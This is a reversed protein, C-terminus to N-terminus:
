KQAGLEQIRTEDAQIAKTKSVTPKAVFFPISILLCGGGGGAFATMFISDNGPQSRASAAASSTTASNYTAMTSLMDILFYSGVGLAVVGTGLCIWGLTHLVGENKKAIVLDQQQTKLDSNLKALEQDRLFQRSLSLTPLEVILSGGGIVQFIKIFTDYTDGAVKAKVTYEGPEISVPYQDSDSYVKAADSSGSRVLTISIKEKQGIAKRVWLAAPINPNTIGVSVIKTAEAAYTSRIADSIFYFDSSISINIWPNQTGASQEHVESIVKKFLDEIKMNSNLYKLLASTFVGNRGSGDLAVDGPSTSFMIASGSTGGSAQVVTLGRTGGLSRSMKKAFPNDRCADLIILSISAKAQQIADTVSQINIADVKIDDLTDFDTKVPILYNSGDAQMGHGAYFFLADAGEHAALIDRFNAVARNFGRHDADTVLTVNWGIQKLSAAIDTADNVPNKLAADGEYDANGVVLAYRPTEDAWAGMSILFCVMLLVSSVKKLM